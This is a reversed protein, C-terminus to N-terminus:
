IVVVSFSSITKLLSNIPILKVDYQKLLSYHIPSFCCKAAHKQEYSYYHSALALCWNARSDLAFVFLMVEASEKQYPHVLCKVTFEM